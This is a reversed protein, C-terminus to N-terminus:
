IEGLSLSAATLPDNAIARYVLTPDGTLCVEVVM